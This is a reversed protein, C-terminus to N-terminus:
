QRMTTQGGQNMQLRRNKERKLNLNFVFLRKGWDTIKDNVAVRLFVFMMPAISVFIARREGM